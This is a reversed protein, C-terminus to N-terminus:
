SVIGFEVGLSVSGDVCPIFGVACFVVCAEGSLFPSWVGPRGKKTCRWGRRINGSAIAQMMEAVGPVRRGRFQLCDWGRRPDTVAFRDRVTEAAVGPM